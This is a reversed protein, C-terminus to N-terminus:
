YGYRTHSAAIVIVPGSSLRTSGAQCPHPMPDLQTVYYIACSNIHLVHSNKGPLNLTTHVLVMYCGCLQDARV